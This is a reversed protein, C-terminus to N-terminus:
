SMKSWPTFANKKIMKLGTMLIFLFYELQTGSTENAQHAAVLLLQFDDLMPDAVLLEIFEHHIELYSDLRVFRDSRLRLKSGLKSFLSLFSVNEIVANIYLNKNPESSTYSIIRESM